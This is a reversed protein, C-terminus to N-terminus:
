RSVGSRERLYTATFDMEPTAYQGPYDQCFRTLRGADMAAMSQEQKRLSAARFLALTNDSQATQASPDGRAAARAQDQLSQLLSEQAAGHQASWAKHANRIAAGSGPAQLDCARAAEESAAGHDVLVLLGARASGGSPEPAACAAVLCSLSTCALSFVFRSTM